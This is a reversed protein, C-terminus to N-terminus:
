PLRSFLPCSVSNWTSFIPLFAVSCFIKCYFFGIISLEYGAGVLGGGGRALLNLTNTPATTHLLNMEFQIMLVRNLCQYLNYM